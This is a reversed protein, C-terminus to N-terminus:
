KHVPWSVPWNSTSEKASLETVPPSTMPNNSWYRITETQSAIQTPQKTHMVATFCSDTVQQTTHYAHSCHFLQWRSAANHPICSQLSVATPSKSRQTTHMAAFLQWHSAANHQKSAEKGELLHCSMKERSWSDPVTHQISDRANGNDTIYTVDDDNIM